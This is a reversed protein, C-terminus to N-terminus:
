EVRHFLSTCSFEPVIACAGSYRVERFEALFGRTRELYYPRDSNDLVLVGRPAVKPASHKLCSPRARGDVLVVDFHGDPFADIASVYRRYSKGRTPVDDSAYGEPDAPDAAGMEEREEPLILRYDVAPTDAIRARTTAFWEADHEISVCHAGRSQWFLTSGGSGYEFVRRGRLELATLREIADFVLWPLRRELLWDRRRSRWWRLAHRRQGPDRVLCLLFALDTSKRTM